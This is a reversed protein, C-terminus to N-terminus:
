TSSRMQLPERGQLFIWFWLGPLVIPLGSAIRLLISARQIPFVREEELCTMSFRQEARPRPINRITGGHELFQARRTRDINGTFNGNITSGDQKSIVRVFRRQ